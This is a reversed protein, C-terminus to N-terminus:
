REVGFRRGALWVAGAVLMVLGFILVTDDLDRATAGTIAYLLVAPLNGALSALLFARWGLPSAGAFIALTEALIPVPRSAAVALLGWDRLLRNARRREEEDVWRHLASQGWRGFAFGAAAAGLAGVLSVAAGGAIGFLAGSAIMLLSAPVPIFVDAILLAIVALAAPWIGIGDLLPRPDQLWPIGMAEVLGFLLLFLLAMAAFLTWYRKM